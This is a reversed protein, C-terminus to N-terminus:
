AYEGLVILKATTTRMYGDATTLRAYIRWEGEADLESTGSGFAHTLTLSSASQSSLSVSWTTETGDPKLVCFTADTVTSLDLGSDGATVIMAYSESAVAGVYLYAPTSM